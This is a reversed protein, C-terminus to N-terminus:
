SDSLIRNVIHRSCINLETPPYPIRVPSTSPRKFAAPWLIVFETLLCRLHLVIQPLEASAPPHSKALNPMAPTTSSFHFFNSLSAAYFLCNLCDGRSIRSNSLKKHYWKYRSSWIMRMGQLGAIKMDQSRGLNAHRENKWYTCSEREVGM